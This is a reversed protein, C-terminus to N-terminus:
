TQKIVDVNDVIVKPIRAIKEWDDGTERDCREALRPCGLIRLEQLASFTKLCAPLELLAPCFELKLNKLTDASGRILWEPLEEVAELFCLVLKKLKFECAEQNPFNLAVCGSIHLDQLSTLYKISPPLSNLSPCTVIYLSRLASLNEMDEFLRELNECTAIWLFRLSKLCGIEDRPLSTQRTALWLFRLSEMYRMGRPLEEIEDCGGLFLTQLNQLKCISNPLRKIRHNWSLDLYRLHKLKGIKKPLEKFQSRSLNLARLYKFRSLCTELISNSALVDKDSHIFVTRVQDLEKSLMPFDQRVSDPDPISIHQVSKEIRKSNATVVFCEDQAVSLALDHMVDLMGFQLSGYLDRFDQLFCGYELEKLYISGIDELESEGDSSQLLGHAMWFQILEYDNYEYNKPFLSCYAFCRKLCSPLQEYSVRLAPLIDDEKQEVKWLRSDRILNWDREDTNLFLQGALTRVALPVEGCKKVIEEGIRLLNPYQKDQGEKFAYKVFLSLCEDYRVGQLNHVYKPATGIMSAVQNSRTTVMIMSGRAGVRLLDKLEEWRALNDNWLDDLVLFYKKDRISERLLTQLEEVEMSGNDEGIGVGGTASIILKEMLRKKDSDRSVYVWMKFQFHKVVREDNYAMKALTTKGMGGIGVIPLVSINEEDSPHLLLQIIKEKDEDRGIIGASHVFSHTGRERNLPRREEARETLRCKVNGAAIADLGENIRKLKRGITSRFILPNSSSFCRLVKRTYFNGRDIVQRRLNEVELEDLVDEADYFVHNLQKLWLRLEPSNSRKEEADILVDKIVLMSHKLKKLEDENCCALSTEEYELSGLKEVVNEAINLSFETM